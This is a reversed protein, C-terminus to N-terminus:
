YLTYSIHLASKYSRTNRKYGAHSLAKQLLQFYFGDATGNSCPNDM